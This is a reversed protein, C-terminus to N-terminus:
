LTPNAQLSSGRQKQKALFTQNQKMLHINQRLSSYKHEQDLQRWQLTEYV